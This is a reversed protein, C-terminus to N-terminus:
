NSVEIENSLKALRNVYSTQDMIIENKALETFDLLGNNQEEEGHEDIVEMHVIGSNHEEKMFKVKENILSVKFKKYRYIFKKYITETDSLTPEVQIKGSLDNIYKLITDFENLEFLQAKNQKLIAVAIFLQYYDSKKQSWLTEWIRMCDYFDFERKFIVLLWKFCFFLHHCNLKKELNSNWGAHSTDIELDDYIEPKDSSRNEPNSSFMPITRDTRLVDKEIRFKRNTIRKYIDTEFREDGANSNNISEESGEMPSTPGNNLINKWQQKLSDYSEKLAINIENRKEKTSDWPFINLLYKWADVRIDNELGSYYILDRIENENKILRGEDNYFKSWQEMTIPKGTRRSSFDLLEINQSVNDENQTFSSFQENYDMSKIIDNIFKEEQWKMEQGKIKQYGNSNRINITQNIANLTKEQMEKSMLRLYQRAAEYENCIKKVEEKSLISYTFSKPLLPVLPMSVPAGLIHAAAEKGKQTVKSFQLFINFKAEELIKGIDSNEKKTQGKAVLISSEPIEDNEDCVKYIHAGIDNSTKYVKKGVISFWSALESYFDIDKEYQKKQVFFTPLYLENNLQLIFGVYWETPITTSFSAIDNLPASISNKILEDNYSFYIGNESDPLIVGNFKEVGKYVKMDEESIKDESVWSFVYNKPSEEFICLVGPLCVDDNIQIFANTRSYLLRVKSVFSENTEEM